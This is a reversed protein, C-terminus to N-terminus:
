SAETRRRRALLLLTAAGAVLVSFGLSAPVIPRAAMGGAGTAAGGKPTVAVSTSDYMQVLEVPRGIGGAAALTHIHGGEANFDKLTFIPSSSGAVRLEIEYHGAPMQLYPSVEMFSINRYLATSGNQFVDVKPVDPTAHLFRATARDAPPNGGSSDPYLNLNMNKFKGAVVVSYYSDANLTAQVQGSAPSDPAAGAPRVQYTHPGPKLDVYKSVTRYPVNSWTRTGDIYLDVNPSDSSLYLQRLWAMGPQGARVTLPSSVLAMLAALAVVLVYRARRM